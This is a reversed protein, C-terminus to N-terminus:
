RRFRKGRKPRNRMRELVAASILNGVTAAAIALILQKVDEM